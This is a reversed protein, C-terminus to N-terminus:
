SGGGRWLLPILRKLLAVDGSASLRGTTWLAYADVEGRAIALVDQASAAITLNPDKAAGEGSECTGEKARVWWEGGGDGDVRLLVTADLDRLDEPPVGKLFQALLGAIQDHLAEGQPTEGVQKAEVGTFLESRVVFERASEGVQETGYVAIRFPGAPAILALKKVYQWDATFAGLVALVDGSPSEAVVRGSLRHTEDAMGTGTASPEPSGVPQRGGTTQRLIAAAQAAGEEAAADAEPVPNGLKLDVTLTGGARAKRDASPALMALGTISVTAPPGWHPMPDPDASTVSAHLSPLWKDLSGTFFDAAVFGDAGAERVEKVQAILEGVDKLPLPGLGAYVPIAGRVLDVDAKVQGEVRARDTGYNMCCIFDLWGQKVWEPWDQLVQSCEPGVEPRAVLSVAIGSKIRHAEESIEKVLSTQLGQRWREYEEGYKGGSVVEAPWSEVTIKADKQFQTRCHDCYCYTPAPEGLFDFQMGAIDYKRVLELMADKELKRNTPHSPCPWDQKVSADPEDRILKGEANRMLRGEAEYQKLIEEPVRRWTWNTRWMHLEIRYQKAARVAEALEDRGPKAGPAVPLVKSPYHAAGGDCLNLFIANFGNDKLSKMIAPWDRSYGSGMTVGRLEGKRSQASAPLACAALLLLTMLYRRVM